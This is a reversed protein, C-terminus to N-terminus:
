LNSVFSLSIGSGNDTWITGIEFTLSRTVKHKIGFTTSTSCVFEFKGTFQSVSNFGDVPKIFSSESSDTYEKGWAFATSMPVKASSVGARATNVVVSQMCGHHTDNDYLNFRADGTESEAFGFESKNSYAAFDIWADRYFTGYGGISSDITANKLSAGYPFILTVLSSRTSNSVGEVASSAQINTISGAKLIVAVGAVYKDGKISNNVVVQDINAKANNMEVVVGAAYNGYVNTKTVVKSITGANIYAVGGAYINKSLYVAGVSTIECKTLEITSNNEAVVGGIYVNASIESVAVGSGTISSASITGNNIASIGGVKIVDKANNVSISVKATSNVINGDNQAVMGGVLANSITSCEYSITVNSNTSNSISGNNVAVLGGVKENGKLNAVASSNTITSNEKLNAVLGGVNSINASLNLKTVSVEKINTNGAVAVVGGFNTATINGVNNFSITINELSSVSSSDSSTIEGAVAGVNTANASVGTVVINLNKITCNDLKGFLGLNQGYKSTLALTITKGNGDLTVNTLNVPTWDTLTVDEYLTYKMNSINTNFIDKFTSTNEDIINNTLDKRFYEGSPLEPNIRTFRLTPLSSTSTQWIYETDWLIINTIDMAYFVLGNAEAQIQMEGATSYSDVFYNAKATDKFTSFYSANYNGSTIIEKGNLVVANGILYRIVDQEKASFSYSTTIGGLFAGFSAEESNVNAYSQQISGKNDDIVFEGALGGFKGTSSTSINVNTNNVYTALVSAQNVKGFLGGVAVDKVVNDAGANVVCSDAYALKASGSIRGALAGVNSNNATSTVVSSLVAIRDVNGLIEGALVGACAYEGSITANSITLNSVVASANISSFLGANSISLNTLNLASITKGNGDFNGSFGVYRSDLESYGIPTFSSSLVINNMLKFYKNLGYDAGIKSLDTENFVYYPTEKEGNGIHVTVTFEAYKDNSTTIVLNVDGAVEGKVIYYGKSDDFYVANQVDEGAANYNFTTKKSAKKRSFGLEELTITDGANVYIEKTEIVIIEDNKMFYFTTLGVCVVVVISVLFILFKKM